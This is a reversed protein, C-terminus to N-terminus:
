ENIVIRITIGSMIEYNEPVTYVDYEPVSYKDTKELPWNTKSWDGAMSDHQEVHFNTVIDPIAITLWDRSQLTVNIQYGSELIKNNDDQIHYLCTETSNQKAQEVTWFTQVFERPLLNGEVSLDYIPLKGDIIQQVVTPFEPKVPAYPGVCLLKSLIQKINLEGLSEGATFGGLTVGAVEGDTFLVNNLIDLDKLADDVFSKTAYNEKISDIDLHNKYILEDHSDSRKNLEILENNISEITATTYCVKESIDELKNDLEHILSEHRDVDEKVSKLLTTQSSLQISLDTVKEQVGQLEEETVWDKLMGDIDSKSYVNEKIAADREDIYQKIRTDYHALDDFDIAQPNNPMPPPCEPPFSPPYPPKIMM